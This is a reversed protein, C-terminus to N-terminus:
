KTVLIWAPQQGVVVSPRVAQLCLPASPGRYGVTRFSSPERSVLNDVRSQLGKQDTGVFAFIKEVLMRTFLPSIPATYSSTPQMPTPRRDTSNIWVTETYGSDSRQGNATDVLSDRGPDSAWTSMARMNISALLGGSPSTLAVVGHTPPHFKTWIMLSAESFIPKWLRLTETFLRVTNGEAMLKILTATNRTIFANSWLLQLIITLSKNYPMTNAASHPCLRGSHPVQHKESRADHISQINIVM